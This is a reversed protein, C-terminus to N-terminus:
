FPRLHRMLARHPPPASQAAPTLLLPMMLLHLMLLLRMMLDLPAADAPCALYGVEAARQDTLSLLWRVGM